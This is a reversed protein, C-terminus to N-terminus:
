WSFIRAAKLGLKHLASDIKGFLVSEAIMQPYIDIGVNVNLIGNVTDHYFNWANHVHGCINILVEGRRRDYLDVIPRLKDTRSTSPLHQVMVDYKGVKTLLFRAAPVAGNNGDHNGEILVIQANIAAIAEKATIQNAKDGTGRDLGKQIFDGVHIITDSKTKARENANRILMETMRKASKWPRKCKERILEDNLHWDSTFYTM